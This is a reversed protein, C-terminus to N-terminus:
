MMTLQKYFSSLSEMGSVIMPIILYFMILAYVPTFGLTSGLNRKREIIRENSEKRSNSNFTMENELEEFAKSVELDSCALQLNEVLKLFPPFNVEDKLEELAEQPGASFNLLCKQLSEKFHVSFTEMWELIEQVHVRNMHMLMLIIAQFQSVEDEMDIKRARAMIELGIIPANYGALFIIFCLLIQWYWLINNSLRNIKGKIRILAIQSEQKDIGGKDNIANLISDDDPYKGLSLIISRDFDTIEQLKNLEDESLKGGLFGDPMQPKYLIVNNSYANIGIFVLLGFLFSLCGVIVRRTYLTYINLPAMASKILNTMSNGKQTHPKPVLRDIIKYLFADYVKQEFSKIYGPKLPRDFRQLRRLIIYSFVSALVTIIGLIIGLKSTYFGELPAFSNAAWNRLPKLCFLPVLAIINLSRLAYKLKERKHLETKIENGLYTVCRIFVSNGGIVSDGYEKTIYIIGALMKFYKNPATEYYRELEEDIDRSSLIDNIREAQAYVEFTGKQNLQDCAEINAVEVSKQEYYKHRLLELYRLQQRLLTNQLKNIFLEIITDGIFALLVTFLTLLLLDKTILWFMIIAVFFALITTTLLMVSRKRLTKEDTVTYIELRKRISQLLDRLLPIRCITRYLFIYVRLSNGDKRKLRTLMNRQKNSFSINFVILAVAFSLSGIGIIAYINM